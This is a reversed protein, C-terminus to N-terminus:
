RLLSRSCRTARAALDLLHEVEKMSVEVCRKSQATYKNYVKSEIASLNPDRFMFVTSLLKHEYYLRLVISEDVSLSRSTILSGFFYKKFLAQNRSCGFDALDM